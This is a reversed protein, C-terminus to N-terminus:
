DLLLSHYKREVMGGAPVLPFATVNIESVEGWGLWGWEMGVLPGGPDM